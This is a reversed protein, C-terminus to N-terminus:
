SGPFKEAEAVAAAADAASVEVALTPPDHGAIAAAVKEAVTALSDAVVKLDELGLVPLALDLGADVESILAQVQELTM